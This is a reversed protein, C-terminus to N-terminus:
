SCSVAGVYSQGLGSGYGLRRSYMAVMLKTCRLEFWELVSM